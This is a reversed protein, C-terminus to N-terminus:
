SETVREAHVAVWASMHAKGHKWAHRMFTIRVRGIWEPGDIESSVRADPAATEHPPLLQAADGITKGPLAALIGNDEDFPDPRRPM